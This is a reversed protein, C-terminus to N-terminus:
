LLQDQHEASCYSSLLALLKQSAVKGDFEEVARRRGREGLRKALGPTRLLGVIAKAVDAPEQPDVLIGTLGDCVADQVGGSRGAVVPKGFLNAELYVIGFGEADGRGPIERSIMAFVDCAAYYSGLDREPVLGVFTVRSGLLLDRVLERLYGERPGTGVIVYHAEPIHTLIEPLARIVVDHGKREVLSGVTLIVRKGDLHLRNKLSKPPVRAALRYPDVTPHIVHVKESELGMGIAKDRTFQSIVFVSEASRIMSNFLTKYARRQPGLIDSGYAFVGFPTGNLAHLLMAPLVLTHHAAGCLVYSPVRGKVLESFYYPALWKYQPSFSGWEQPIRLRRISFHQQADFVRWGAVPLGVVEMKEPPFCRAIDYLMSAIGGVNPPFNSTLLAVGNAKVESHGSGYHYQQSNENVRRSSTASGENWAADPSPRARRRFVAPGVRGAGPASPRCSSCSGRTSGHADDDGDM